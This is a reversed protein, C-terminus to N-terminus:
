YIYDFSTFNELYWDYWWNAANYGYCLDYDTGAQKELFVLTSSAVPNFILMDNKADYSLGVVNTKMCAKDEASWVLEYNGRVVTYTASDNNPVTLYYTPYQTYFELDYLKLYIASDSKNKVQIRVLRIPSAATLIMSFLMVALVVLIVKKM